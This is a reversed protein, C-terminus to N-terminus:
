RDKLWNHLRIVLYFEVVPTGLGRGAFLFFPEGRLIGDYRMRCSPFCDRLLPGVTFVRCVKQVESFNDRRGNKPPFSFGRTGGDNYGKLRM